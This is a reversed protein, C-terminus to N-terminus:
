NNPGGCVLWALLARREDPTLPPAGAQPMECNVNRSQVSLRTGGASIQAYTLLPRTAKVGGPGHCTGCKTQFIAQVQGSFSPAPSPCAAPEDNPCSSGGCAAGGTALALWALALGTAASVGAILGRRRMAAITVRGGRRNM